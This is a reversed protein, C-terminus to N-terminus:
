MRHPSNLPHGAERDKGVQDRTSYATGGLGLPGENKSIGGILSDPKWCYALGMEGYESSPPGVQTM